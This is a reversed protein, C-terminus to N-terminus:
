GSERATVFHRGDRSVLVRGDPMRGQVVGPRGGPAEHATGLVELHALRPQHRRYTSWDDGDSVWLGDELLVLLRGDPLVAQGRLHVREGHPMSVVYTTWGDADARAAREFPLLTAGDAGAVVALVDPDLSGVPAALLGDVDPGRSAREPTSTTAVTTPATTPDAPSCSMLLLVLATCCLDQHRTM